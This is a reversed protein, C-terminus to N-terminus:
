VRQLRAVITLLLPPPPCFLHLPRGVTPHPLILEAAHLLPHPLRHGAVVTPGGYREDGLIPCGLAALHLRIQHTRGTRPVAWVLAADAYQQRVTLCTHALKIRQGDPLPQGIATQDYLRWRGGAARGHGTIVETTAPPHGACVALYRKYVLGQAFARQLPANARSQKSMVLIGSTGVDLQHALHLVPPQGDRLTLLRRMVALVSGHTDWPTDSVYCAPPKNIVVLDDDEYIIHELTLPADCYSGAPPLRVLLTEGGTAPTAADVRRRGIWLGGRAAALRGVEGLHETAIVGLPRGHDAPSIPLSLVTM